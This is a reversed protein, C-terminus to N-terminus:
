KNIIMDQIEFKLYVCSKLISLVCNGKDNFALILSNTLLVLPQYPLLSHPPSLPSLSSLPSTSSLLPLPQSLTFHKM